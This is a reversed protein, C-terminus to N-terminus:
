PHPPAATQLAGTPACEREFMSEARPERFLVSGAAEGVPPQWQRDIPRGTGESCSLGGDMDAEVRTIWSHVPRLRCVSMPDCLGVAAGPSDAGRWPM